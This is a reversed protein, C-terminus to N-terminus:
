PCKCDQFKLDLPHFANVVFFTTDGMEIECAIGNKEIWYVRPIAKTKSKKFIVEGERMDNIVESKQLGYCEIECSTKGTFILPTENLQLIIQNGPLWSTCSRNGFLFICIASGILIGILFRVLRQSFNM